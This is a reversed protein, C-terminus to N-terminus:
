EMDPLIMSKGAGDDRIATQLKGRLDHCVEALLEANCGLERSHMVWLHITLRLDHILFHLLIQVEETGFFLIMPRFPQAEGLKGNVVTLVQGRLEGRELKGLGVDRAHANFVPCHFCRSGLLECIVKGMGVVVQDLCM